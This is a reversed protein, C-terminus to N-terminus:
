QLLQKMRHYCQPASGCSGPKRWNPAEKDLLTELEGWNAILAEWQPSVYRMKDIEVSLDPAWILLLLCRRLDAPDSPHCGRSEIAPGHNGILFGAMVRSSNGVEGHDFWAVIQEHLPRDKVDDPTLPKGLVQAKAHECEEKTGFVINANLARALNTDQIVGEPQDSMLEALPRIPMAGRVVTCGHEETIAYELDQIPM